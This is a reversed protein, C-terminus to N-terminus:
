LILMLAALLGLRRLVDCLRKSPRHRARSRPRHVIFDHEHSMALDKINENIADDRTALRAGEPLRRGELVGPRGSPTTALVDPAKQFASAKWFAAGEM